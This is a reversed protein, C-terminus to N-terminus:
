AFARSLFRSVSRIATQPAVSSRSSRMLKPSLATRVKVQVGNIAVCLQCNDANDLFPKESEVTIEANIDFAGGVATGQGPKALNVQPNGPLIASLSPLAAALLVALSRVLM